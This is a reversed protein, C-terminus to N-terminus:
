AAPKSLQQRRRMTDTARPGANGKAQEPRRRMVTITDRHDRNRLGVQTGPYAPFSYVSVEILDVNNLARMPTEDQDTWWNDDFTRFGFSIPDFKRRKINEVIDPRRFQGTTM